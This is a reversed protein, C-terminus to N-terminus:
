GVSLVGLGMWAGNKGSGEDQCYISENFRRFNIWRVCVIQRPGLTRRAWVFRPHSPERVSPTTAPNENFHNKISTEFLPQYIYIDLNFRVFFFQPYLFIDLLYSQFFPEFDGLHSM